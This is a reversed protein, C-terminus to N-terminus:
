DTSKILRLHPATLSPLRAPPEAFGREAPEAPGAAPTYHLGSVTRSSTALVDFRVPGAPAGGDSVLVGLSRSIGGLDDKLPLLIM